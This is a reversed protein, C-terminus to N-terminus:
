AMQLSTSHVEAMAGWVKSFHTVGTKWSMPWM